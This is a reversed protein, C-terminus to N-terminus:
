QCGPDDVPSNISLVIHETGKWHSINEPYKAEGMTKNLQEGFVGDQEQNEEASGRKSQADESALGWALTM